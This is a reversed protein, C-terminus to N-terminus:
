SVIHQELTLFSELLLGVLHYCVLDERAGLAKAIPFGMPAIAQTFIEKLLTDKQANYRENTTHTYSDQSDTLIHRMLLLLFGFHEETEKFEQANLRFHTKKVLAKAKLLSEGNLCGELYHSLYLFIQPNPIKPRKSKKSHQTSSTDAQPLFHTSFPLNFTQTYERLLENSDAKLLYAKLMAFSESDSETIPSTALIDIQQLFLNKREGVLEYLFFGAFFDYYLARALTSSDQM